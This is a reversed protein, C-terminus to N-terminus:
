PIRTCLRRAAKKVVMFLVARVGGSGREEKQTNELKRVEGAGPYQVLLPLRRSQQIVHYICLNNDFMRSDLESNCGGM